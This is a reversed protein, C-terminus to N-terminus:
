KELVKKTSINDEDRRPRKITYHTKRVLISPIYNYKRIDRCSKEREKKVIVLRYKIYDNWTMM